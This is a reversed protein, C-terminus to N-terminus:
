GVVNYVEKLRSGNFDFFEFSKERLFFDRYDKFFGSEEKYKGLVFCCFIFVRFM